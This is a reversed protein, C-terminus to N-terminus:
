PNNFAKIIDPLNTILSWGLILLVWWLCGGYKDGDIEIEEKTKM